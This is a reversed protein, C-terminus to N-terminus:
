PAQGRPGVRAASEFRDRCGASCFWHRHGGVDSFLTDPVVAVTMGCVPDVAARPEAAAGSPDAAEVPAVPEPVAESHLAVAHRSAVLEALISVAIEGPTRAGIWLGAPTHIRDRAEADLELGTLVAAGRRSSAVLAVYPVGARAAATLLAEEDRGHSAVVVAAVDALAQSTSEPSTSEPSSFEGPSVARLEYELGAGLALLSRGIPTDGLVLVVPAPRQPELFIELEGGSLCPNAVVLTGERPEAGPGTAAEAEATEEVAAGSGAQPSIRLLLSEGSRLVRLAQLRVTSEACVGGVFGEIRGDELVLATDGPHASTPHLARVVTAKVFPVQRERLDAMRREMATGTSM